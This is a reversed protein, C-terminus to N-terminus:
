RWVLVDEGILVDCHRWGGEVGLELACCLLKNEGGSWLSGARVFDLGIAEKGDEGWVKLHGEAVFVEDGGFWGELGSEGALVEEFV